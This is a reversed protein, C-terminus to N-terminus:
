EAQSADLNLPITMLGEKKGKVTVNMISFGKETFGKLANPLAAKDNVRLFLTQGPVSTVQRKTDFVSLIGNKQPNTVVL